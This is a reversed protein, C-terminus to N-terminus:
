ELQLTARGKATATVKNKEKRCTKGDSYNKDHSKGHYKARTMTAM